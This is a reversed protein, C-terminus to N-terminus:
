AKRSIPRVHRALPSSGVSRLFWRKAAENAALYALLLLMLSAAVAPPLPAFGFLRALPGAYPAAVAFIAVGVTTWVLLPSPRSRWSALRTRLVMVVALETLLSLVFWATQFVREPTHFAFLLLAFALLDFVTSLLGFIVMFKQIERITLRQAHELRDADVTDGAIAMSPLDSLLNNLLIQKAAMPLFPLFPAALAMSVMNGFNASTTISIYKLTNAFARRGGEVGERLVDLDRRLLVVDASERAVDVALDVSVGVDAAYLAPADNIGDGLYGVSHGRRQLARVIREKQQPDVEAFLTTQEARAWLAEDKLKAIEGGTLLRGGNLGVAEAVHRVVHRNDGSIVKVAVGLRGLAAIASAADTKPPDLFILFGELRLDREDGVTCRQGAPLSRTAIALLRLGKRGMAECYDNIRTRWVEDLPEDAQGSQVRTCLAMVNDVAGKTILVPREPADVPAVVVSL